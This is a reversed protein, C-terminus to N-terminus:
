YQLRQIFKKDIVYWTDDDGYRNVTYQFKDSPFNNGQSHTDSYDGSVIKFTAPNLRQMSEIFRFNISDSVDEGFANDSVVVFQDFRQEVKSIHYSESASGGYCGKDGFWLIIYEKDSPKNELLFVNKRELDAGCAINNIHKQMVRYVQETNALAFQSIFLSGLAILKLNM